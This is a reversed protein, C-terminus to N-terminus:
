HFISIMKRANQIQFSLVFVEDFKTQVPFDSEKLFTAITCLSFRFLSLKLLNEM